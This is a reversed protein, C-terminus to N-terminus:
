KLRYLSVAEYKRVQRVPVAPRRMCSGALAPPVGCGCRRSPLSSMRIFKNLSTGASSLTYKGQTSGLSPKKIPTVLVSSTYVVSETETLGAGAAAVGGRTSTDSTPAGLWARREPPPPTAWWTSTTTTGALPGSRTSPRIFKTPRVRARCCNAKWGESILAAPRSVM